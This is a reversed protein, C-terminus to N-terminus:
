CRRNELQITEVMRREIEIGRKDEILVMTTQELILKTDTATATTTTTIITEAAATPIAPNSTATRTATYNNTKIELIKIANGTKVTINSLCVSKGKGGGEGYGEEEERGGGEERWSEGEYCM